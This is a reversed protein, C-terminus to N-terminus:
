FVITPSLTFAFTGTAHAAVSLSTRLDYSQASGNATFNRYLSNSIGQWTNAGAPTVAVSMTISTEKGAVPRLSGSTWTNPSGTPLDAYLKYVVGSTCNISLTTQQAFVDANAPSAIVGFDINGGSSITCAGTSRGTITQATSDFTGNTNTNKVRFLAYSLSWAGIKSVAPAGTTADSLRMRVTHDQDVGTGTGSIHTSTSNYVMLTDDSRYMLMYINGAGTALPVSSNTSTSRPYLKYPVGVACNVRVVVDLATAAPTTGIEIDPFAVTSSVPTVTCAAAGGALGLALGLISILRRLM